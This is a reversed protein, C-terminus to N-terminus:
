KIPITYVPLGQRQAYLISNMTGGPRGNFCALLAASHDVMYRNRRMM